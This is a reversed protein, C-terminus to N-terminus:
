TLMKEVAQGLVSSKKCYDGIESELTRIHKEVACINLNSEFILKTKWALKLVDICAAITFRFRWTAM